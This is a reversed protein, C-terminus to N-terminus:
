QVLMLVLPEWVKNPPMRAVPMRVVGCSAIEKRCNSIMAHVCQKSKAISVSCLRACRVLCHVMRALTHVTKMRTETYYLHQLKLTM